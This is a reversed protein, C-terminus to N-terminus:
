SKPKNKRKRPTYGGRPFISCFLEAIIDFPRQQRPRPPQGPVIKSRLTLLKDLHPRFRKDVPVHNRIHEWEYVAVRGVARQMYNHWRSRYLPITEAENVIHDLHMQAIDRYRTALEEPTRPELQHGGTYWGHGIDLGHPARYRIRYQRGLDMIYDHFDM